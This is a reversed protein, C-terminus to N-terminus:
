EKSTMKLSNILTGKDDFGESATQLHLYSLGHDAENQMPIDFIKADDLSFVAQKKDLDFDIIATHWESEKVVKEDLTFNFIADESVYDFCPNFWRDCLSVKIGSNLRYFEIEIRGKRALPYNWVVGQKDSYLRPDTIRCIQLVEDGDLRPSPVLLAGNTRNWSAHGKECWCGSYSKVYLQTSVGELGQSFDEFKDKEKLWDPDFIVMKRSSVNQGFVVLLKSFPLEVVQFQHISKDIYYNMDGYNRFDARNRITNLFFEKFGHWTKGDYTYACHNVDRNTFVKTDAENHWEPLIYDELRKEELPQSNNWFLLKRGDKMNFFTPLTTYGHFNSLEGDTWTEGNDYSFYQYFYYTSTRALMMLTNNGLEVITPEVGRNDSSYSLCRPPLGWKQSPKLRVIKWSVGYDDSYIFAPYQVEKKHFHTTIAIRKGDCIRIPLRTDVTFKEDTLKTYKPNIDHPGIKSSIICFAQESEVYNAKLYIDREPIYTCAGMCGKPAYSFKWSLGGDRSYKYCKEAKLDEGPVWDFKSCNILGYHRIEGDPMVCMDYGANDIPIDVVTPEYISKLIAKDQETM